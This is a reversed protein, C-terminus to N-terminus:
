TSWGNSMGTLNCLVLLAETETFRRCCLVNPDDRLM